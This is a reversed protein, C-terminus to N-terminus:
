FCAQFDLLVGTIALLLLCTHFNLLVDTAATLMDSLGVPCWYCCCAHAHHLVHSVLLFLDCIVVQQREDCILDVLRDSKPTQQIQLNAEGYGLWSQAGKETM